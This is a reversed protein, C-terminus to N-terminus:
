NGSFWICNAFASDFDFTTKALASPPNPRGNFALTYKAALGQELDKTYYCYQVKPRTTDSLGYNWGTVVQGGSFTVSRFITYDTIPLENGEATKAGLQLQRESPQPLDVKMDGVVRISSDPDLKVISGDALKISQNPVLSIESSPDLTM